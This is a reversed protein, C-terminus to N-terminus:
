AAWLRAAGFMALVAAPLAFFLMWNIRWTPVNLSPDDQHIREYAARSFAQWTFALALLTCLLMLSAIVSTRQTTGLVIAIVPYFLMPLGYPFSFRYGTQEGPEAATPRATIASAPAPAPGAVANRLDREHRERRRRRRIMWFLLAPPGIIVLGVWLALTLASEV